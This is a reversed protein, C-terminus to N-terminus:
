RCCNAVERHMPGTVQLEFSVYPLQYHHFLYLFILLCILFTCFNVQQLKTFAESFSTYAENLMGQCKFCLNLMPLYVKM